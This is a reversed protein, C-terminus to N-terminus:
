STRGTTFRPPRLPHCSTGPRFRPIRFRTGIPDAPYYTNNENQNFAKSHIPKTEFAFIHPNIRICINFNLPSFHM